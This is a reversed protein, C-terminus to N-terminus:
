KIHRLILKHMMHTCHVHVGSSPRSGQSQLKLPSNAVIHTSSVSGPDGPLAGLERLQQTMEKVRLQANSSDPDGPVEVQINDTCLTRSMSFGGTAEACAELCPAECVAAKM